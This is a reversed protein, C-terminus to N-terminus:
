TSSVPWRRSSYRRRDEAVGMGAGTDGVGAEVGREVLGWGGEGVVHEYLHNPTTDNAVYVDLDGDRDLDSLVAGLGWDPGEPEVGVDSAVDTFTVRGGGEVPGENVLVLDAYGTVFLVPWGNGDLDGVSAGAHWGYVSAGSPSDRVDEVAFREGGENWLLVNERTTTVYLDTWGDLDLDAAVCGNARNEVAAGVAESVDSFRGVENRYLANRPLGGSAEWGAVEEAAHGNVLYLDLWGDRDYDIWCLGGSMMAEPDAAIDWRFAGHRFDLGVEAAVDTFRVSEMSAAGTRDVDAGDVPEASSPRSCSALVLGVLALCTTLSAHRGRLLERCVM